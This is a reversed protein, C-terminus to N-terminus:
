PSAPASSDFGVGSPGDNGSRTGSGTSTPAPSVKGPALLPLGSPGSCPLKFPVRLSPFHTKAQRYALQLDAVKLRGYAARVIKCLEEIVRQEAEGRHRTQLWLEEM